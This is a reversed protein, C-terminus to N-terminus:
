IEKISPTRNDAGLWCGRWARQCDRSAACTWFATITRKAQDYTRWHHPCEFKLKPPHPYKPPLKLYLYKKQYMFRQFCSIDLNDFGQAEALNRHLKSEFGQNSLTKKTQRYHSPRAVLAMSDWVAPIIVAV